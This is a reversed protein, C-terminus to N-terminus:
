IYYYNTSFLLVNSLLPSAAQCAYFGFSHCWSKLFSLGKNHPPDVPSLLPKTLSEGILPPGTPIHLYQHPLNWSSPKSVQGNITLHPLLVEANRKKSLLGKTESLTGTNLNRDHGLRKTGHYSLFKPESHQKLDFKRRQAHTPQIVQLKTRNESFCSLIQSSVSCPWNQVPETAVTGVINALM